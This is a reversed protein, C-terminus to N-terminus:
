FREPKLFRLPKRKEKDSQTETTKETQGMRRNGTEHKETQRRGQAKRGQELYVGDFPAKTGKNSHLKSRNM